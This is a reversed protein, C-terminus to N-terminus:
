AADAGRVPLRVVDAGGSAIGDLRDGLLDLAQRVQPLYRARNYLSALASHLAAHNLAAEIIHPEVGLEGLLTAATRRLDHRQWGTTKTEKWVRKTARDWNALGNGQESPFVLDDPAPHEGADQAPQAADAQDRKAEQVARKMRLLVAMAQPSLPVRHATGNKTEPIRWEAAGMDVDRWRASSVEERRALTLLMFLMASRYTSAGARLVPLIAALEARSLVRERKKVTAPPTILTTTLPLYARGPAAAWKLIPRLYRVAAAASQKAPYADAHMQLDAATLSALAKDMFPAFVHRIRRDCEAWSKLERGVREAYLDVLSALTNIGAKADATAKRRARAQAIPDAGQRVEERTKRAAERADRLGMAPFEGLLFRRAAGNPDRCGLVWSAKGSVGIRLRLGAQDPDAMEARQRGAEAERIAKRIATETLSPM